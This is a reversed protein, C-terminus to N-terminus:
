IALKQVYIYYLFIAFERDLDNYRLINSITNRHTHVICHNFPDVRYVHLPM